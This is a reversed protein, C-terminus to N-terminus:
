DAPASSPQSAIREFFLTRLERMETQLGDIRQNTDDIRKNADDIRRNVNEFGDDMRRNISEFGDNMRQNIGEFGDDFRRNVDDFRRNVDDFRRNVNEFGEALRANTSCTGVSLTVVIAGIGLLMPTQDRNVMSGDGAPRAARSDRNDDLGGNRCLPKLRGDM